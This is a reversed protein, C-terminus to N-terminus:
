RRPYRFVVRQGRRRPRDRRESADAPSIAHSRTAEDATVMWPGFSGSALFNKGPAFQHTHRQFDRVSGDNFCSYGAVYDLAKSREIRHAARGIIVALEGEYDFSESLAPRVLAENHGVQADAYRVFMVPYKPPERGMEKMHPTYNSGVCLFKAAPRSDRALLSRRRRRYRRAAREHRSASELAGAASCRRAAGRVGRRAPRRRRHGGRGGRNRLESTEQHEFSILRM